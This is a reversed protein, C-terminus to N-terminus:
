PLVFTFLTQDAAVSVYQRGDLSYTIAPARPAGGLQVTWLLAGTRADAAHFLGNSEGYFVVDGATSLSATGQMTEPTVTQWRIKGTAADIATFTGYTPGAPAHYGGQWKTRVRFPAPQLTFKIPQVQGAVYLMGTRPSYSLPTWNSGGGMGPMILTGAETPAAFTNQHPVFEDTRRIRAGTRRDLIYIWGV